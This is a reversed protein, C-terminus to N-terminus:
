FATRTRDMEAFRAARSADFEAKTIIGDKNADAAMLRGGPGGPGQAFAAASSAALVLAASILLTRM